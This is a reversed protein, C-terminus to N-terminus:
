FGGEPRARLGAAAAAVFGAAAIWWLGFFPIFRVDFIAGNLGPEEVLTIVVTNFPGNVVGPVPVDQAIIDGRSDLYQRWEVRAIRTAGRGRRVELLVASVQRNLQEYSSLGESTFRWRNGFPGAIQSSEGSALPLRQHSGLAIGALALLAAVAGVAALTTVERSAGARRYEVVAMAIWAALAIWELAGWSPGVLSRRLAALLAVSGAGWAALWWRRSPTGSAHRAAAVLALAAAVVLVLRALPVVGVQWAPELGHGDYLQSAAPAYPSVAAVIILLLLVAANLLTSLMPSRAGGAEERAQSQALAGFLATCAAFFLLSGAPQSLLAAVRFAAPLNVSTSAAVFAVSFDFYYLAVALGTVALAALLAAAVLARASSEAFDTAREGVGRAGLVGALAGWLTLSLAAWLALEGVATM